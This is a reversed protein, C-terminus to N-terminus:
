WPSQCDQPLAPHNGRCIMNWDAIQWSSARLAPVGDSGFQGEQKLAMEFRLAHQLTQLRGLGGDPAARSGAANFAGRTGNDPLGPCSLESRQNATVVADAVVVADSVLLQQLVDMRGRLGEKSDLFIKTQAPTLVFQQGFAPLINTRKQAGSRSAGIIVFVREIRADTVDQVEWRWACGAEQLKSLADRLRDGLMEEVYPPRLSIASEAKANSCTDFCDALFQLCQPAANAVDAELNDFRCFDEADAAVSRLHHLALKTGLWASLTGVQRPRQSLRYALDTAEVCAHWLACAAELSDDGRPGGAPGEGDHDPPSPEGGQDGGSCRVLPEPRAPRLSAHSLCAASRLSGFGASLRPPLLRHGVESVFATATAACRSAACRGVVRIPLLMTGAVGGAAM